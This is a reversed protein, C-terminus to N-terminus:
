RWPGPAGTASDSLCFATFSFFPLATSGIFDGVVIFDLPPQLDREVRVTQYAHLLGRVAGSEAGVLGGEVRRGEEIAAKLLDPARHVGFTDGLGIEVM